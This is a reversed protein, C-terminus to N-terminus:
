IKNILDKLLRNVERYLKLHLVPNPFERKLLYGNTINTMNMIQIDM